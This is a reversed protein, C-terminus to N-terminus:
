GGQPSIRFGKVLTEADLLRRAERYGPQWRWNEHILLRVGAAECAEVMALCDEWTPAMPKQCIVHIGRQAAVRTLELHAQPRTAIDVFDPRERDLAEAVSEYARPIGFREAFSRAKGPAADVVAVIQAAPIRLWGEAQFQAFYGAGIMVGKSAASSMAP